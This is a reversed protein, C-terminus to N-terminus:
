SFGPHLDMWTSLLLSSVFRLEKQRTPEGAAERGTVEGRVVLAATCFWCNGSQFQRSDLISTLTSPKAPLSPVNNQILDSFESLPRTAQLRWKVAYIQM